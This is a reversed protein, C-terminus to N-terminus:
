KGDKVLEIDSVEVEEGIGGDTETTAIIEEVENSM